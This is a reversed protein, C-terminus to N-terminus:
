YLVYREWAKEIMQPYYLRISKVNGQKVTESLSDYFNVEDKILVNSVNSEYSANSANSANSINSANLVNSVNSDNSANSANSADGENIEHSQFKKNLDNENQDNNIASQNSGSYYNYMQKFIQQGGLNVL